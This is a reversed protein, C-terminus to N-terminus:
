KQSAYNGASYDINQQSYGQMTKAEHRSNVTHLPSPGRKSVSQDKSERGQYTYSNPGRPDNAYSGYKNGDRRSQGNNEYRQRGRNARYPSRSRTRARKEYRSEQPRSPEEDIDDYSIRSRQKSEQPPDDEYHVKFRRPDGRSRDSYEDERARKSGRPPRESYPSRSGDRSRRDRRRYEHEPSRSTSSSARNRDQRDISTGDFQPLSKTAKEVGADRIEGEDSSATSAM